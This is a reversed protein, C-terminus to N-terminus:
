KIKELYTLADEFTDVGIVEIKYNNKKKEKIAEEYNEGNPVFFIDAKKSVAGKIKHKVGGIEGVTGDQEITGTGAIKLGHTIDEKVLHNYISLTLLLGGSSGAESDSFKLKIDPNTVYDFSSQIMVGIIKSGDEEYVIAYTDILKGDRLVKLQLRDGISGKSVINRIDDLNTIPIHNISQINDGIKLNTNAKESLYLIYNKMGTIEFKKNAKQYAVYIANANGTDLFLRDRNFVDESTETSSLRVDDMKTLEWSPLVHALLYTPLTVKIESVYCLNFSGKAKYSDEIQIRDDVKILGGGTYIYYPLPYCFVALLMFYLTIYIYNEKIFTKTKEYIKSSIVKDFM